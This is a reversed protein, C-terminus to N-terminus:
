GIKKLVVEPVKYGKYLRLNVINDVKFFIPTYNTDYYEKIRLAVFIITDKINIYAHRYKDISTPRLYNILAKNTLKNFAV